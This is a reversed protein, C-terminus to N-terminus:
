VPKVKRYQVIQAHTPLTDWKWRLDGVYTVPCPKTAGATKYEVVDERKLESPYDLKGGWQKWEYEGSEASTTLHRLIRNAYHVLKQAGRLATNGEKARGQRAAAQRWVEKFINGEDFTMGLAHIIDECEAQYPQQNERQPNKVEVLYYNVRGGSNEAAM